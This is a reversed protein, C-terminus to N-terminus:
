YNRHSFHRLQNESTVERVQGYMVHMYQFWDVSHIFGTEVPVQRMRAPQKFLPMMMNAGNKPAILPTLSSNFYEIESAIM